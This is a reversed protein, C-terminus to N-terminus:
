DVQHPEQHPTAPASFPVTLLAFRNGVAGALAGGGAAGLILGLAWAFNVLAFGLGRALGAAEAAESLMATAPACFSGTSALTAVLVIAFAVAGSTLTLGVM